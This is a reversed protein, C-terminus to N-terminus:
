FSLDLKILDKGEKTKVPKEDAKLRILGSSEWDSLACEQVIAKVTSAALAKLSEMYETNPTGEPFLSLKEANDPKERIAANLKDHASIISMVANEFAESLTASVKDMLPSFGYYERGEPPLDKGVHASHLTFPSVGEVKGALTRAIPFLAKNEYKM